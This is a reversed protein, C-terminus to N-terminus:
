GRRAMLALMNMWAAPNNVRLTEMAAMQADEPSSNVKGYPLSDPSPSLGAPSPGAPGSFTAQGPLFAQRQAGSMVSEDPLYAGSMANVPQIWKQPPLQYQSRSQAISAKSAEEAALRDYPMRPQNQPLAAQTARATEQTQRIREKEDEVRKRQRLQEMYGMFANMTQNPDPL